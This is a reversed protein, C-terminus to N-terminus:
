ADERAGKTAAARAKEIQLRVLAAIDRAADAAILHDDAPAHALPEVPARRARAAAIEAQVARIRAACGPDGVCVLAADIRVLIRQEPAGALPGALPTFGPPPHAFAPHASMQALANFISALRQKLGQRM